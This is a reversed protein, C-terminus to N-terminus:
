RPSGVPNGVQLTEPVTAEPYNFKKYPLRLTGLPLTRSCSLLLMAKWSRCKSIMYYWKQQERNTLGAVPGGLDLPLPCVGWRRIPLCDLLKCGQKLFRVSLSCTQPSFPFAGLFPSLHSHHLLCFLLSCSYLGKSTVLPFQSPQLSPVERVPVPPFFSMTFVSVSSFTISKGRSLIARSLTRHAWRSLTPTSSAQSSFFTFM